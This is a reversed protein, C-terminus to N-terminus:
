LDSDAEYFFLTFPIVALSLVLISIFAAMWMTYMPLSYTCATPSFGNSCAKKNAIDLPYMLVAWIAITLGLVIIIKPGQM